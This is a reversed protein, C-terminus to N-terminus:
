SHKEDWKKKLELFKAKQQETLLSYMQHQMLIRNKLMSGRIKNIQEVLSDLKAEDIKNAKVLDGIQGRLAKLQTLNAKMDAHGQEKLANVKAQQEPTLNLETALKDLQQHKEDCQKHHCHAFSPQGLFLALTFASIWILKKSM